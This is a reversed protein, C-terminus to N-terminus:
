IMSTMFVAYTACIQVIHASQDLVLNITKKNAKFDDIICHIIANIAFTLSFVWDIQFHLYLAIPLMIMFAWSLSHMLLGVIYDFKYYDNYNEQKEWWSKQKLNALIGQLYYDDVIHCFIMAIFVFAKM